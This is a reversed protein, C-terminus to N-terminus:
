TLLGGVVLCRVRCEVGGLCGGLGRLEVAVAEVLVGLLWGLVGRLVWTVLVLLVSPRKAM